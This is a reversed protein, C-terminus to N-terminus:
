EKIKVFATQGPAPLDLPKLRDWYCSIFSEIAMRPSMHPSCTGNNDIFRWSTSDDCVIVGGVNLLQWSLVLDTLVGGARHDGDVYIFDAKIGQKILDVLGDSSPKSIYEVNKKENVELNHLFNSKIENFDYGELDSSGIHPDVAYIKLNQNFKHLMDSLWFTTYGEYVGIEIITNPCGFASFINNMNDITRNDGHFIITFKYSM